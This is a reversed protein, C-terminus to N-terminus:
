AGRNLAFDSSNTHPAAISMFTSFKITIYRNNKADSVNKSRFM